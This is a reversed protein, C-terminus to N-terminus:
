GVVALGTFGKLLAIAVEKVLPNKEEFPGVCSPCGSSCACGEILRKADDLIPVIEEFIRDTLGVGGAHADYYFLALQATDEDEQALESQAVFSIDRPDCMLRLSALQHIAYGLGELGRMLPVGAYRDLAKCLSSSPALWTSETEIVEKPLNVQGYGLNEHTHFRIKKFGTITETVSVEGMRVNGGPLTHHKLEELVRLDRQCMAKTYYVPDVDQLYARMEELSLRDVRYTQGENLYIAQEHLELRAAHLDVESIAQGSKQDIVVVREAQINRLSVLGAPYEGGVYYYRKKSLSFDGEDLLCELAAEMDSAKLNGFTEGVAFPLEFTACRLHALLIEVNNPQALAQEPTSEWLYRPERSLFQDLPNATTVLVALSPSQRRGARGARQRFGAITGPYGAMVVADLSGIDIGLELANTAVVGDLDGSKLLSEIERRVLPLYGGRYGRIRKPDFGHGSVRDRLYSLVIEVSHRTQCFVLTKVGLLVLDGALRATAKLASGRIGKELDVIGPDYILFKKAGQPAGSELMLEFPQGIITEALEKPNSITASCAAFVPKSKYFRSVRCLRRLVNSVHSGFVGRYSHLEDIVVFALGSFFTAWNAHHPLIGTHLMDPNTILIRAKKRAARRQDTPTDGDYVSVPADINTADKLLRIANEQDRSLAKTPFLYLARANPDRCLRNIIPINYCLTKGSATPTAVVVNHGKNLNEWSSVQHFYPSDIGYERLADAVQPAIWNPLPAVNSSCPESTMNAM